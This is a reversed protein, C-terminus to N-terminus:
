KYLGQRALNDAGKNEKEPIWTLTLQHFCSMLTLCKELLQQHSEKRAYQKEITQVLSKSDSHCFIWEDQKQQETLMELVYYFALFEAEHNDHYAALKESIQTQKGNEIVLIGISSVQKKPNAAGDIYVRIM